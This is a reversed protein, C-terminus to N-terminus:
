ELLRAIMKCVFIQNRTQSDDAASHDALEVSDAMPRVYAIHRGDPSFVCAEPRPAHAETFAGTLRHTAGTQANTVCVSGGMGHAIWKGDPSWTFASAVDQPNRTLQLLQGHSPSVTWLQVVGVDDRMLFAIRAGDPSSRPWHRPGQIGPHKRDATFTLRRQVVGVPPGPRTTSTGELPRDGARALDNPLDLVFVESLHRGDQSIVEGQFAIARQQREGDARMYGASGVWADECARCIEDSGAMPHDLTNSVVVSFYSGDHNRPNHGDVVVRNNPLFAAPVSVGIQRSNHQHAPQGDEAQAATDLADLEALVHDEYTFAIWQGDPSFTHVHSGGRLAGPTFPPTIDRADMNILRKADGGDIIVGRRHWANYSWDATPNEPGHIFVIKDAVPSTTVVGVCAARQSEYITEVAGSAVHVREIRRGDFLSGSPDSRVDYYIWAGDHSWVNANTLIHNHADATIQRENGQFEPESASVSLGVLTTALVMAVLLNLLLDHM